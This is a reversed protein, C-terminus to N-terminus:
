NKEAMPPPPQHIHGNMQEWPTGGFPRFGTLLEYFIVGTSYIDSRGDVPQELLQEPSAYQVTGLFGDTVIRGGIDPHDAGLIKAIGFDLVKLDRGTPRGDVRMLNS